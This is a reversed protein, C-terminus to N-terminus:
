GETTINISRFGPPLVKVGRKKRLLMNIAERADQTALYYYGDNLVTKVPPFKEKQALVILKESGFPPAIVFEGIEVSIGVLEEGIYTSDHLLTYKTGEQQDDALVYILRIYAPQNVRCYVTMLDGESYVPNKVDQDTWSELKLEQGTLVRQQSTSVPITEMAVDTEQIEEYGAPKLAKVFDAALDLTSKAAIGGTDRNYITAHLTGSSGDESDWTSGSLEFSVERKAGRKPRYIRWGAQALQQALVEKLQGYQAISQNSNRYTFGDIKIEGKRLGQTQIALQQVISASIEDVTNMMRGQHQLQGIRKNVEPLSMHLSGGSTGTAVEQLKRLMAAPDQQQQPIVAQQILVSEKLQEYLPLTQLYAELSRQQNIAEAQTAKAIRVNIQEQLKQAREVYARMLKQREVNVFTYGGSNSTPPQLTAQEFYHALHSDTVRMDRLSILATSFDQELKRQEAAPVYMNKAQKQRPNLASNVNEFLGKILEKKANTVIDELDDGGAVPQISQILYDDEPYTTTVWTPLEASALQATLTFVGLLLFCVFFKRM